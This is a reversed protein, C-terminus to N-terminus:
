LTRKREVPVGDRGVDGPGAVPEGAAPEARGARAAKLAELQRRAEDEALERRSRARVTGGTGEVPPAPAAEPREGLGHQARLRAIPDAEAERKVAEEAAGVRGFLLKEVADLAGDAAKGIAAVAGDVAASAAQKAAEAKARDLIGKDAPDSM